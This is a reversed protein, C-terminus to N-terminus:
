PPIRLREVWADGGRLESKDFWIEIGVAMLADAIRAAAEADESAYSLFIVAGSPATARSTERDEVCVEM